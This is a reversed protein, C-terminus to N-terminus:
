IKFSIKRTRPDLGLAACWRCRCGTRPTSSARWTSCSCATPAPTTAAWLRTTATAPRAWGAGGPPPPRLRTLRGSGHDLRLTPHAWAYPKRSYCVCLISEAASACVHQVLARFEQESAENARKAAVSLGQCRALCCFEDFTLGRESIEPLDVCCDLMHSDYWRWPGKWVEGPDVELANLATVLTGLGCFAPESQTEFVESLAFFTEM